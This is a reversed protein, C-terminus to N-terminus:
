YIFFFRWLKVLLSFMWDVNDANGFPNWHFYAAKECTTSQFVVGNEWTLPFNLCLFALVKRTEFVFVDGQEGGNERNWNGGANTYYCKESIKESSEGFRLLGM